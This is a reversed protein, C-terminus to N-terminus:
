FSIRETIQIARLRIVNLFSICTTSSLNRDSLLTTMFSPLAVEQWSGAVIMDTSIVRLNCTEPQEWTHQCTPLPSSGSHSTYFSAMALNLYTYPPAYPKPFTHRHTCSLHPSARTLIWSHIFPHCTLASSCPSNACTSSVQGLLKGCEKDTEGNVKQLFQCSLDCISIVHNCPTADITLRLQIHLLWHSCPAPINLISWFWWKNLAAM